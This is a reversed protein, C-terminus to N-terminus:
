SNSFSEIILELYSKRISDAKTINLTGLFEFLLAKIMDIKEENPSIYEVELFYKQLVPIYDLLIEIDYDKYTLKFLEREKKVTLVERFGLINLLERLKEGDEVKTELEKRTKTEIDIKKGKYTLFTNSIQSEEKHHKNFKISKRIRLAEDTEKFDRLKEPMNYYTDEHILSCIYQGNMKKLEEKIFEPNPLPIKIEVEIM